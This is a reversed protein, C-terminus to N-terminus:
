TYGEKQYCAETAIAMFKHLQAM